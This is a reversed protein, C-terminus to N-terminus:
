DDIDDNRDKETRAKKKPCKGSDDSVSDDSVSDDSETSSYNTDSPTDSEDIELAAQMIEELTSFVTTGIESRINERLGERYMKVLTPKDHKDVLGGALFMINYERECFIRRAENRRRCSLIKYISSSTANESPTNLRAPQYSLCGNPVSYAYNPPTEYFHVLTLALLIRGNLLVNYFVINIVLFFLM